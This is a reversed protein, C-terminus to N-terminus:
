PESALFNDLGKVTSHAIQRKVGRSSPARQRAQSTPKCGVTMAERAGCRSLTLAQCM